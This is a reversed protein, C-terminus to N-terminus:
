SALVSQQGWRRTSWSLRRPSIGYISGIIAFLLSGYFAPYVAINDTIAIIAFCVIGTFATACAIRINPSDCRLASLRMQWGILCLPVVLAILGCLGYDYLVRIYDNHAHGWGDGFVSAAYAASSGGGAGLLLHNPVRELLVPWVDFRGSSHVYSPNRVLEQLSLEGDSSMRASM